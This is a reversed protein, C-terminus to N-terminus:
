LRWDRGSRLDAISLLKKSRAFEDVFVTLCLM